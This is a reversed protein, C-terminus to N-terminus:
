PMKECVETKNLGEGDGEGGKTAGGMQKRTVDGHKGGGTGEARKKIKRRAEHGAESRYIYICM